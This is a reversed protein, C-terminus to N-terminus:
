LYKSDSSCDDGVIVEALAWDWPTDLDLVEQPSGMILPISRKGLFSRCERLESPTILYFCGNVVYVPPLDQSRMRFGDRSLFPVLCDDDIKFSWMPHAPTPSVGIVASLENTRFLEIGARITKKTRFPSTPQLLLLGDIEGFEMEYWGLAHLAADVSTATDTALPAPRLWPATAGALKSIDLITPDDTSVLIDCIEEIGKAVDISWVIMPKGGLLRSNKGPLRKSGGRALILALIRM